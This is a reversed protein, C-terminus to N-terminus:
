NTKACRFGIGQSRVGPPFSFRFSPRLWKPDSANWAGGRLVRQTGTAPGKPDTEDIAAYPADWDAVWEMVNGVMDLAGYPSAGAPFKGVPATTPYGDDADYLAAQPLSAKKGWAVCEAGCANQRTPDPPADGWPYLRGDKGRAALEWEASTPLRKGLFTCYRSAADWDVCNVPHDGRDAQNVNCLAGLAKEADSMEPFWVGKPLPPVEGNASAARYADLTVETRDICFPALTVKHRPKEVPLAIEVDLGIFFSGGPVEVMGTPCHMTIPPASAAAAASPSAADDRHGFMAPNRLALWGLIAGGALSAVVTPLVARKRAAPPFAATSSVPQPTPASLPVPVSPPTMSQLSPRLDPADLQTAAFAPRADPQSLRPVAASKLAAWFEGATAYRDTPKVALAKAFVAEVADSVNAGRRRPTPRQDTRTSEFALQVIDDGPLPPLLTLLETLILAFAFVDTWPGTAGYSARSFQEPAGYWPTFSALGTGTKAAAADLQATDSVIKAIGFDLVKVLANPAHAHGVVFLNAPKLDRHAVGRKHVVDLASAVPAFVELIEALQWPGLGRKVDDALVADLPQGDLWELVLYPFWEGNPARWTGIDYAQLISATRSSLERLLKGERLFGELLLERKAPESTSLATLFKLAVPQQLLNHTGKYLLSFGGEAILHEVRYKDLLTTGVIRLPDEESM